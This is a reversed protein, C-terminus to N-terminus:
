CEKGVRREESRAQAADALACCGALAVFACAIKARLPRRM